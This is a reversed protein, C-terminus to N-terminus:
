TLGLRQEFFHASNEGSPRLYRGLDFLSDADRTISSTRETCTLTCAFGLKRVIDDTGKSVAGFPYALTTPRVGVANEIRNQAKTLDATLRTHYEGDAEGTRQQLGLCGGTNEHLQYSHNQVEVLGTDVMEKLNEWHCHAYYANTEGTESYADSCYGIPSIVFKAGYQQALPFAYLYNNYYGDDFTLLIPKEPLDGGQTYAILDEVLVTTYGHSQLWQLDSEFETPSIVYTGHRAEDKLVSHYMVIPIEVVEAASATRVTFVAAISVAACLLVGAVAKLNVRVSHYFRM